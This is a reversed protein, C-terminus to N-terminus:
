YDHLFDAEDEDIDDGDVVADHRGFGGGRTDLAAAAALRPRKPPPAAVDAPLTVFVPESAVRAARAGARVYAVTSYATHAFTLRLVNQLLLQVVVREAQQAGRPELTLWARARGCNM